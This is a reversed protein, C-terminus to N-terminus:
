ARHHVSAVMSMPTWLLVHVKKIVERVAYYKETLDGAESLPANFDYSTPQPAYPTNAGSPKILGIQSFGSKDNNVYSLQALCTTCPFEGNWYGFTTGGIFMYRQLYVTWNNVCFIVRRM